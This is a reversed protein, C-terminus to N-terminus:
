ALFFLGVFVLLSVQVIGAGDPGCREFPELSSFWVVYLFLLLQDVSLQPFHSVVQDIADVFSVLLLSTSSRCAVWGKM